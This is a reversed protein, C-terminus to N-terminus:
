AEQGEGEPEEAEGDESAEPEVRPPLVSVLVLSEDDTVQYAQGKTKLDAVTLISGIELESIDLEISQPIDAPIASVTIEHVAQQVVGGEKAGAAEGTLVLRVNATMESSMDVALFDAHIIVGKLPDEQYDGLVVESRGGDLELSLVGNRGSKRIARLFEKGDVFVSKNEQNKGYVVAPVMGESRLKRASWKDKTRENAKLVTSM